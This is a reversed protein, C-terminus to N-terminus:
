KKEKPNRIEGIIGYKAFYFLANNVKESYNLEEIFKKIILFHESFDKEFFQNLDNELSEFDQSGNDFKTNLDKESFLSKTTTKFYLNNLVKDYVFIKKRNTNFFKKIHVQSVFHHNRPKSM